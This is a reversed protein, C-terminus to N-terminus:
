GNAWDIYVRSGYPLWHVGKAAESTTFAGKPYTSGVDGKGWHTGIAYGCLYLAIALISWLIVEFHRDSM